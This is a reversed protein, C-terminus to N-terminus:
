FLFKFDVTAHENPGLPGTSKVKSFLHYLIPLKMKPNIERMMPIWSFQFKFARIIFESQLAPATMNYYGNQSEDSVALMYHHAFHNPDDAECIILAKCPSGKFFNKKSVLGSIKVGYDCSVNKANNETNEEPATTSIELRCSVPKDASPCSFSVELDYSVYANKGFETFLESEDYLLVEHDSWNAYFYKTIEFANENLYDDGINTITYQFAQTIWYDSEHMIESTYWAMLNTVEFDPVGENEFNTYDKGGVQLILGDFDKIEVNNTIIATHSVIPDIEQRQTQDQIEKNEAQAALGTLFFMSIILIGMIKKM